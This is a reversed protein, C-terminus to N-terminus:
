RHSSGRGFSGVESRQQKNTVEYVCRVPWLLLLIVVIVCVYLYIPACMSVCVSVHRVYLLYLLLNLEYIGLIRSTMNTQTQLQNSFM